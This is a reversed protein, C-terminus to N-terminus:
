KFAEIIKQKDKPYSYVEGFGELTDIYVDPLRENYISVKKLEKEKIDKKIKPIKFKLKGKEANELLTWTVIATDAARKNFITKGLTITGNCTLLDVKRRAHENGITFNIGVDYDM